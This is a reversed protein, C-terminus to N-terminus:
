GGNLIEGVLSLDHSVKTDPLSWRFKQGYGHTVIRPDFAVVVGRDTTRRILRGFGQRFTIIARPLVYSPFIKVGREELADAIPDTPDNFPLKDMVVCSLAPGPVDVGGWFSKTGFLV